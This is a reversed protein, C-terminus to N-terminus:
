GRLDFVYLRAEEDSVVYLRNAAPDVAVGEAKEVEKYDGDISYGLPASDIVRNAVWDYLFLRRAKDSVIWIAKRASDYCLGSYDIEHVPLANDRFGNDENLLRYGLIRRLDSSVEILVGPKGEKVVFITNDHANWTIGELGKNEEASDFYSKLPGDFGAMKALKKRQAVDGGAVELKFIENSEERVTLLFAGAPDLTIGEMGKKPIEFIDGRDVRGKLDLKFVKRTDDSVTWFGNRDHALVLGSPELLGADKDKISYRALFTLSFSM